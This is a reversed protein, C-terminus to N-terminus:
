KLFKYFSIIYLEGPLITSVAAAVPETRCESLEEQKFNDLAVYGVPDTTHVAQIFYRNILIHIEKRM